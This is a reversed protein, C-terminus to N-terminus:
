AYDRGYVDIVWDGSRAGPDKLTINSIPPSVTTNSGQLAGGSDVTAGASKYGLGEDAGDLLKFAARVVNSTSTAVVEIQSVTTTVTGRFNVYSYDSKNGNVQAGVAFTTGSDDGVAEVFVFLEDSPNAVSYSISTQGTVTKPSNGDQKWDPANSNVSSLDVDVKATGNDDTVNVNSAFNLIPSSVVDTGDNQTQSPQPDALEGSLNAVSIEDVGGDEHEGSHAEPPRKATEDDLTADSVKTNLNSLTDASHDGGGLDHPTDAKASDLADTESKRVVDTLNTPSNAVTANQATLTDVETGADVRYDRLQGTSVTDDTSNVVVVAVVTSPWTAPFPISANFRQFRTLNNQSEVDSVRVAQGETKNVEGSSDVWITDYRYQEVGGVSAVSNIQVSTASNLSVVNGGVFAEDGGTGVTLTDSQDLEGTDVSVAYSGSALSDAPNIVAYGRNGYGLVQQQLAQAADDNQPGYFTM